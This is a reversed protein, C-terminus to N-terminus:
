SPPKEVPTAESELRELEARIPGAHMAPLDGREMAAELCERWRPDARARSLMSALGKDSARAPNAEDMLFWVGRRTPDDRDSLRWVESLGQRGVERRMMQGDMAESLAQLYEGTMLGAGVLMAADAVGVDKDGVLRVVIWGMRMGGSRQSMAAVGQLVVAADLRRSVQESESWGVVTPEGIGTRGVLMGYAGLVNDRHAGPTLSGIAREFFQSAEEDDPGHVALLQAAIRGRVGGTMVAERLTARIRSVEVGIGSSSSMMALQFFRLAYTASQGNGEVERLATEILQAPCATYWVGSHMSVRCAEELSDARRLRREVKRRFWRDQWEWVRAWRGNMREVLTGTFGAGAAGRPEIIADPLWEYGAILVTTPIVGRVGMARANSLGVPAYSMVVMGLGLWVMGRSGRTRLLDREGKAQRGCEPCTADSALMIFEYWCGACRRRGYAPDLTLGATAIGLGVMAIGAATLMWVDLARWLMLLDNSKEVSFMGYLFSTVAVLVCLGVGAASKVRPMRTPQRRRPQVSREAARQEWLSLGVRWALAFAWVVLVTPMVLLFVVM